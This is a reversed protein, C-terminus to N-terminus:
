VSVIIMILNSKQMFTKQTTDEKFFQVEQKVKGAEKMIFLIM